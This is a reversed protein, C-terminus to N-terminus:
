IYPKLFRSFNKPERELLKLNDWDIQHGKSRVVHERVASKSSGASSKRENLRKKLNRAFEGNYKADCDGCTNEYV